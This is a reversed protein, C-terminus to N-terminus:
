RRFAFRVGRDDLVLAGASASGRVERGTDYRLTVGGGSPDVRYRGRRDRRIWGEDPPRGVRLAYGDEFSGDAHLTVRRGVLVIAPETVFTVPPPLGDVSELEYTGAPGDEPGLLAGCGWTASSVGVLLVGIRAFLHM